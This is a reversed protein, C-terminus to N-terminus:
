DVSPLVRKAENTPSPEKSYDEMADEDGVVENEKMWGDVSTGSVKM